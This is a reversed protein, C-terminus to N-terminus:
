DERIKRIAEVLADWKQAIADNDGIYVTYISTWCTQYTEELMLLGKDTSILFNDILCGEICDTIEGKYFDLIQEVSSSTKYTRM